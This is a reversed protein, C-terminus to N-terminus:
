ITAETIEKYNKAEEIRAKLTTATVYVTDYDNKLLFWTTAGETWIKEVILVTPKDQRIITIRDGQQIKMNTKNLIKQYTPQVKREQESM